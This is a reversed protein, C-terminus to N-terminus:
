YDQKQTDVSTSVVRGDIIEEVITKVRREMHPKHEVSTSTFTTVFVAMVVDRATM